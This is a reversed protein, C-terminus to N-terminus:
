LRIPLRTNRTRQPPKRWIEVEPQAAFRDDAARLTCIRRTTALLGTCLAVSTLVPFPLRGVPLLKQLGSTAEEPESHFTLTEKSTLRRRIAENGTDGLGSTSAPPRVTPALDM